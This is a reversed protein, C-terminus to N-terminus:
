HHDKNCREDEPAQHADERLQDTELFLRDGGGIQVVGVQNLSVLVWSGRWRTDRFYNLFLCGDLLYPFVEVIFVHLWYEEFLEYSIAPHESLRIWKSLLFLLLILLLCM